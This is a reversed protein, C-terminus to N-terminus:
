TLRLSHTETEPAAEPEFLDWSMDHLRAAYAADRCLLRHVQPLGCTPVNPFLHHTLHFHDNRPFILANVWGWMFMHNRSRNFEEEEGIIVGHDFADSWFRMIQYTTLYPIVYYLLLATWGFVFHAFALLTAYTAVRLLTDRTSDQRSVLVPRLFAKLHGLALPFIVFRIWPSGTKEAFGFGRRQAFDLDKHPSGLHVHHSMHERRYTRLIQFDLAAIVTGLSENLKPSRTLTRHSAEHLMNGLARMRTGIFFVAVPYLLMSAVPSHAHLHSVLAGTGAILGMHLGMAGLAAAASPRASVANVETAFRRRLGAIKESM